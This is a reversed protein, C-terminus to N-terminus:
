TIRCNVVSSSGSLCWIETHYIVIVAKLLGLEERQQNARILCFYPSYKHSISSKYCNEVTVSYKQIKFYFYDMLYKRDVTCPDLWTRLACRAAHFQFHQPVEQSRSPNVNLIVHLCSQSHSWNQKTKWVLIFKNNCIYSLLKRLKRYCIISILM